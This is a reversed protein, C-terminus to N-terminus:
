KRLEWGSIWGADFWGKVLNITDQKSAEDALIPSESFDKHIVVVQM